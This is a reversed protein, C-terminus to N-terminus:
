TGATGTFARGGFGGRGIAGAMDAAELWSEITDWGLRITAFNGGDRELAEDFTTGITITGGPLSGVVLPEIPGGEAGTM